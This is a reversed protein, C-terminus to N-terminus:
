NHPCYINGTFYGDNELTLQVKTAIGTGEGTVGTLDGSNDRNPDIKWPGAGHLQTLPYDATPPINANINGDLIWTMTGAGCGVVYGTLTEVLHVRLQGPVLTAYICGDWKSTGYWTDLPPQVGWAVRGHFPVGGLSCLMGPVGADLVGEDHFHALVPLQKGMMESAEISSGAFATFFAIAIERKMQRGWKYRGYGM